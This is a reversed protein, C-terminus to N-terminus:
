LWFTSLVLLKELCFSYVRSISYRLYQNQKSKLGSLFFICYLSSIHQHYSIPSDVFVCYFLLLIGLSKALSSDHASLHSICNLKSFPLIIFRHEFYCSFPVRDEISLSAVVSFTQMKVNWHLFYYATFGCKALINGKRGAKKKKWYNSSYPLFCWGSTLVSFFVHFEEVEPWNASKICFLSLFCHKLM